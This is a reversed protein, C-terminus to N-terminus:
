QLRAKSAAIRAMHLRLIRIISCMTRRAEACLPEGLGFADSYRASSNLADARIMMLRACAVLQHSRIVIPMRDGEGFSWSEVDSGSLEICHAVRGRAADITIRWVGALRNNPAYLIDGLRLQPPRPKSRM